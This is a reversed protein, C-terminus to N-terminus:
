PEPGRERRKEVEKDLIAIISTLYERFGEVDEVGLVQRVDPAGRLATSLDERITELNQLTLRGFEFITEFIERYDQRPLPEELYDTTLTVWNSPDVVRHFKLTDPTDALVRVVELRRNSIAALYSDLITPGWHRWASHERLLRRVEEVDGAAAAETLWIRRPEGARRVEEARRVEKERLKKWYGFSRWDLFGLQEMEEPTFPERRVPDAPQAAVDKFVSIWEVLSTKSYCRGRLVILDDRAIPELSIEDDYPLLGRHRAERVEMGDVILQSEKCSKGLEKQGDEWFQEDKSREVAEDLDDRTRKAGSGAEEVTTTYTLQPGNVFLACQRNYESCAERLASRSGQYERRTIEGDDEAKEIWIVGDADRGFSVSSNESSLVWELIPAFEEPDHYITTRM